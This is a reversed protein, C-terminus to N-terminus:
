KIAKWIKKSNGILSSIDVGSDSPSGLDTAGPTPEKHHTPVTGEFLDVGNYSDKGIAELMKKRHEALRDPVREKKKSPSPASQEVVLPTTSVGKVVESVVNSLLGEEILMEQICEKVIPKILMKLENKKM